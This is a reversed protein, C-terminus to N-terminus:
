SSAHAKKALYEHWTLVVILGDLVTLAVLLPSHGYVIEVTQYAIFLLLIVITLPYAWLRGRLLQWVLFIKIFGHGLLFVVSVLQAHPSLTTATKLFLNALLDRPDEALEKRTLLRALWGMQAPSVILLVVGGAVELLGDMGKLLLSIDFLLTLRKESLFARM